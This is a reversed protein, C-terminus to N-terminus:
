DPEVLLRVLTSDDYRMRHEARMRLVLETLDADSRITAMSAVSGPEGALERFVWQGVADTVLLLVDGEEIAWTRATNRAFFDPEALFANKSSLTSLLAPRADFEEATSYPFTSLLAGDRLHCALSDGIALIEVERGNDALQLGLLTAFSGREFAAQKSWSLSEFDVQQSYKATAEDVWSPLFHPDSAYKAVLLQAWVRSDYSESAGDSLAFCTLAENPAWADENLEPREPDKPVSAVLDVRLRV